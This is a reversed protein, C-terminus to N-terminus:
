LSTSARAAKPADREFAMNPIKLNQVLFGNLTNTVAVGGILLVSAAYFRSTVRFVLM